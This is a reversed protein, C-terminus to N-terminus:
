LGAKTLFNFRFDYNTFGIIAHYGQSDTEGADSLLLMKQLLQQMSNWDNGLDIGYSNIENEHHKTKM